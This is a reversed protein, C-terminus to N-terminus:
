PRSRVRTHSNANAPSGFSEAANTSTLSTILGMSSALDVGIDPTTGILAATAFQPVMGFKLATVFERIRPDVARCRRLYVRLIFCGLFATGIIGTSSLINVFWNSTRVSGLGVGLGNTAFFANLAVKTWGTREEYSGTESKKFVMTDIMQFVYDLAHPTMVIVALFVLAALLTLIAEWKMGDPNPADPSWARRLWNAAFCIAFVALGVYGSSSTSLAVMALLGLIALPVVYNRVGANEFCPRLFVLNAAAGVCTSGFISAEPMLGVVRKSGLVEVETLLAYSNRFPELLPGGLTMDVVGSAILVFNGILLARM